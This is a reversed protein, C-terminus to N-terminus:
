NKDPAYPMRELQRQDIVGSKFAAEIPAEGACIPDSECVRNLFLKPELNLSPRALAVHENDLGDLHRRWVLDSNAERQHSHSCCSPHARCPHATSPPLRHPSAARGVWQGLVRSSRRGVFAYIVVMLSM